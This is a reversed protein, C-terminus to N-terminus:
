THISSNHRYFSITLPRNTPLYVDSAGLIGNVVPEGNVDTVRHHLHYVYIYLQGTFSSKLANSRVALSYFVVDVIVIFFVSFGISM